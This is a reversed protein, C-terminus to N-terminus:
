GDESKRGGALHVLLNSTIILVAGAALYLLRNVQTQRLLGLCLTANAPIRVLNALTEIYGTAGYSVVPIREDLFPRVACEYNRESRSPFPINQYFARTETRIM